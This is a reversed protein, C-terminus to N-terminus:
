YEQPTCPCLVVFVCEADTHARAHTRTHTLTHTLSLSLTHTHTHVTKNVAIVLAKGAMIVENAIILDQSTLLMTAESADLM